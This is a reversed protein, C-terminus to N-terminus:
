AVGRFVGESPLPCPDNGGPEAMRAGIATPRQGVIAPRQHAIWDDLDARRIRWQRGIRVAPIEGAKILRYVTRANVRLYGLVDDTTLFQHPADQQDWATM